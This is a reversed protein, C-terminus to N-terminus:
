NESNVFTKTISRIRINRHNKEIVNNRFDNEVRSEERKVLSEKTKATMDERTTMDKTKQLSM